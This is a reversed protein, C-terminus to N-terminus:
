AFVENYLRLMNGGLIAEIDSAKYNRRELEEAILKIGDLQDLGAAYDNARESFKIGNVLGPHREYRTPTPSDIGSIDGGIAIHKVGVLEAIHEIHNVLDAVTPQKSYKATPAILDAYFSLGMVGGTAALKKIREDSLNLPHKSLQACNARSNILPMSTLDAIHAFGQDNIAATDILMRLRTMEEVVAVGFYALKGKTRAEAAGDALRNRGYGALQVVRVGFRHFHRLNSLLNLNAKGELPRGGGLALIVASQGAQRAAALDAKSKVLVWDAATTNQEHESLILDVGNMAHWFYNESATNLVRSVWDGGLDLQFVEVGAVRLPVLLKESLSFKGFQHFDNIVEEPLHVHTMVGKM